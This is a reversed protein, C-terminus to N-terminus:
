QLTIREDAKPKISVNTASLKKIHDIVMDRIPVAIPYVKLVNEGFMTYGDGGNYLFDNTSIIYHKEFDIPVGNYTASIFKKDTSIVMKFGSIAEGGKSAIKELVKQLTAGDIKAAVIMNDFPMLEFLKGKTIKGEAISPIRLGSINTFAFDVDKGISKSVEFRIIDAIFNGLNGNPRTNYLTTDATGVVINMQSDLRAKYPAIINLIGSDPTFAANTSIIRTSKAQTQEISYSPSKCSWVLLLLAVVFHYTKLNKM